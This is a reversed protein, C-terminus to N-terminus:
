PRPVLGPARTAERRRVARSIPRWGALSTVAALGGGIVAVAYATQAGATDTIRGAVAAGTAIGIAVGTSAWTLGETLRDAPVVRETAAFGAILTPAIAVGALFLVLCLGPLSRVILLPVLTSVMLVCGGAFRRAVSLRWTVTGYALGAVMSGFAYISLPVGAVGPRGQEEAFAITAVEVTGFVTGIAAMTAVIVVLAPERLVSGRRTGDGPRGPPDTRRQALLSATGSILVTLTLLIAALPSLQTAVLVTVPPGIIFILEDMISEWAFATQLRPDAGGPHDTSQSLLFSWRSRVLSGTPPFGSGALVAATILAPAPASAQVLLVLGVLGVVHVAVATPLIRRQGHRDVLRGVQPAALANVVTFVAAILGALGYSGSANEVLLVLGIGVMSIPLRALLGATSFAAAGPLSLVARYPSLV